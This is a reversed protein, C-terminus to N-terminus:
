HGGSYGGREIADLDHFEAGDDPGEEGNDWGAPGGVFDRYRELFGALIRNFEDPREFPARHGGGSVTVMVGHRVWEVVEHSYGMPTLLDHSGVVAMTPADFARLSKRRDGAARALEVSARERNPEAAQGALIWAEVAAAGTELFGAGFVWPAAVRRLLAPGGAELAALWADLKSALAADVRGFSDALTVSLVRDALSAALTTVVPGGAGHAVVHAAGPAVTDLLRALDAAHEDVGHGAPTAPSDGHGRLDPRVVVYRGALAAATADWDRASGLEGHVLLVTEAGSGEIAHHLDTM